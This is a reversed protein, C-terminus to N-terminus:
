CAPTAVFSGSQIVNTPTFGFYSIGTSLNNFDNIYISSRSISTDALNTVDSVSPIDFFANKKSLRYFGLRFATAGATSAFIVHNGFGSNTAPSTYKFRYWGASSITGLITSWQSYVTIGSGADLVNVEIMYETSLEHTYNAIVGKDAASATALLLSSDPKFTLVGDNFNSFSNTTNFANYDVESYPLNPMTDNVFQAKLAFPTFFLIFLIKKM